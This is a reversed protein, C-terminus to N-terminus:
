ARPEEGSMIKAINECGDERFEVDLMRATFAADKSSREFMGEEYTKVVRALGGEEEEGRAGRVYRVIGEALEMADMMGVNVGVGAFPTMVHAADGLLTVGPRSEWTHGVPLMYLHRLLARDTMALLMDRVHPAFDSLQHDLFTRRTRETTWDIEGEAGEKALGLLNAESPVTDDSPEAENTTKICVYARASGDGHRQLSLFRDAACMYVSGSGIFQAVDPRAALNSPSIWVDLVSVGSYHPRVDTLLPRVRSWTGDAGCVLDYPGSESTDNDLFTLSWKATGEVPSVAAVGKGWRVTGEPLSNLFLDKLDPRDIEPRGHRGDEDDGEGEGEGERGEGKGRNEGFGAGENENENEDLVVTGDKKVIRAVDGEPRAVKKFEAMLGAAAIARQGSEAHIDLTGGQARVAVSTDREFVAAKINHRHLISALALGVPGAGIIAIKPPNQAPM